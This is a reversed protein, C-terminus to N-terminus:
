QLTFATMFGYSERAIIWLETLGIDFEKDVIISAHGAMFLTPALEYYISDHIAIAPDVM